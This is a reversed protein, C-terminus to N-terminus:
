TAAGKIFDIAGRVESEWEPAGHYDTPVVEKVLQKSGCSAYTRNVEDQHAKEALEFPNSEIQVAFHDSKPEARAYCGPGGHSGGHTGSVYCGPM